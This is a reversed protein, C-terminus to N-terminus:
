LLNEKIRRDLHDTYSYIYKNNEITIAKDEATPVFKLAVTKGKKGNMIEYQFSDVYETVTSELSTATGFPDFPTYNYIKRLKAGDACVQYM